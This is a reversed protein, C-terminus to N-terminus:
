HILLAYLEYRTIKITEVICHIFISNEIAYDQFACRCLALLLLCSRKMQMNYSFSTLDSKYFATLRIFIQQKCEMARNTGIKIFM